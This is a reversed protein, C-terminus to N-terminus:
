KREKDIKLPIDISFSTGCGVVSQLNIKAGIEQVIDCTISLGLGTGGKKLRTSFFPEFIRKIDGDSIGCGTDTVACTIFDKDKRRVVIDLKGGDQMAAFSNNVLNLFIQQVKGRDNEFEPIDDPIDLSITFSRYEAEKELFGMVEEIVDRINIPQISPEM